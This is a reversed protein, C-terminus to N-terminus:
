RSAYTENVLITNLTKVSWQKCTPRTIKRENLDAAIMLASDGHEMAPIDRESNRGRIDCAPAHDQRSIQSTQLPLAASGDRVARRKGDKARSVLKMVEAKSMADTVASMIEGTETDPECVGGTAAYHIIM